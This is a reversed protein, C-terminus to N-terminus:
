KFHFIRFPLKNYLKSNTIEEWLLIDTVPNKDLLKKQKSLFYNKDFRITFYFFYFYFYYVFIIVSHFTGAKELFGLNTFSREWQMKTLLSIIWNKSQKNIEEIITNRSQYHGDKGNQRMNCTSHMCQKFKNSVM